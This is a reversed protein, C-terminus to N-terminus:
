ADAPLNWIPRNQASTDLQPPEPPVSEDAPAPTPSMRMDSGEDIIMGDGHITEGDAYTGDGQCDDCGCDAGCGDCAPQCSHCAALLRHILDGPKWGGLLNKGCGCGGHCHGAGCDNHHCGCGSHGHGACDCCSSKHGHCTSGHCFLRPSYPKACWNKHWRKGCYGDWVHDCCSPERRCCGGMWSESSYGHGTGYSTHTPGSALVSHEVFETSANAHMAQISNLGNDFPGAQLSSTALCLLVTAFCTTMKM